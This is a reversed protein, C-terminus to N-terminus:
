GQWPPLRAPEAPAARARTLLVGCLASRSHVRLKAFVSQVHTRVTSFAMNLSRAIDKDTLGRAVLAAVDAERATLGLGTAACLFRGGPERTFPQRPTANKLANTFAPKLIRLLEVTDENFNERHRARWIRLDGINHDGDYAYLNVGWYLGDRALFDNFFETRILNEQPMIENVLTPDRRQQLKHTIPDHFQYYFDYNRLNAEDMNIAIRDAFRQREADWVFSAFYDADLLELLDFGIQLRVDRADFNSTLHDFLGALVQSQRATLYM